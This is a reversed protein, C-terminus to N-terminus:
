DFLDYECCKAINSLPVRMHLFLYYINWKLFIACCRYVCGTFLRCDCWIRSPFFINFLSELLFNFSHFHSHSLFPSLCVSNHMIRMEFWFFNELSQSNCFSVSFSEAIGNLSVLKGRRFLIIEDHKKEKKM